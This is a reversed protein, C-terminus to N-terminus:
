SSRARLRLRPPLHLNGFGIVRRIVGGIVPKVGLGGLPRAGVKMSLASSSAKLSTSRSPSDCSSPPCFIPTELPVTHLSRCLALLFVAWASV